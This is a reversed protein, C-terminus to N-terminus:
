AKIKAFSVIIRMLRHFHHSSCLVLMLYLNVIFFRHLLGQGTLLIEKTGLMLHSLFLSRAPDEVFISRRVSALRM